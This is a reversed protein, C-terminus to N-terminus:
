KGMTILAHNADIDARRHEIVRACICIHLTQLIGGKTIHIGGGRQIKRICREIKDICSKGSTEHPLLGPQFQYLLAHADCTWSPENTKSFRIIGHAASGITNGERTEISQDHPGKATCSPRKTIVFLAILKANIGHYTAEKCLCAIVLDTLLRM